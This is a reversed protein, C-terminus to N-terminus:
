DGASYHNIGEPKYSTSIRADLCTHTTSLSQYINSSYSKFYVNHIFICFGTKNGINSSESLNSGLHGQGLLEGWTVGILLLTTKQKNM